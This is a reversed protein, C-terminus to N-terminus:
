SRFGLTIFTGIWILTKSTEQVHMWLPCKYSWLRWLSTFHFTENLRHFTGMVYPFVIRPCWWGVIGQPLGPFDKYLRDVLYSASVEFARIPLLPHLSYIETYDIKILWYSWHIQMLMMAVSVEWLPWRVKQGSGIAPNQKQTKIKVKNSKRPGWRGITNDM